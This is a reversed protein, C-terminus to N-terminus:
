EIVGETDVGAHQVIWTILAGYPLATCSDVHRVSMMTVTVVFGYDISTEILLAYLCRARDITIMTLSLVPLVRSMVVRYICRVENSFDHVQFSGEGETEMHHPRGEAFCAVMEAQTLLHDVLLPYEPVRVRSAGTIASVLDPTVHIKTGRVWTFFSDGARRHLNAYFERVFKAIAPRHDEVMAAWGQAELVARIRPARENFDTV